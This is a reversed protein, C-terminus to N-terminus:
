AALGTRRHILIHKNQRRKCPIAATYKFVTMMSFGMDNAIVQLTAGRLRMRQMRMQDLLSIGHRGRGSKGGNLARDLLALDSRSSTLISM